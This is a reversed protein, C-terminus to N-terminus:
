KLKAAKLVDIAKRVKAHNGGMAKYIISEVLERLEDVAKDNRIDECDVCCGKHEKSADDNHCHEGCDRCQFHTENYCKDCFGDNAEYDMETVERECTQCTFEATTNTM